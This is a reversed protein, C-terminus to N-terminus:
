HADSALPCRFLPMTREWLLSLVSGWHELFQHSAARSMGLDALGTLHGRPPWALWVQDMKGPKWPAECHGLPGKSGHPGSTDYHGRPSELGQLTPITEMTGDPGVSGYQDRPGHLGATDGHGRPEMPELPAVLIGKTGHHRVTDWHDRPQEM